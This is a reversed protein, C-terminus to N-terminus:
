NNTGIRRYGALCFGIYNDDLKRDKITITLTHDTGVPVITNILGQRGNTGVMAIRIGETEGANAFISTKVYVATYTSNSSYVHAYLYVEYNYSDDPLYSSM